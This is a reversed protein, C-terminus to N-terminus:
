DGKAFSAIEQILEPALAFLDNHHARPVLRLTAAPLLEAIRKGMEVPIVEDESGHVILAPLLLEPAKACTDYRDKVLVRAPLFPAIRSAMDVMSTYPSILVLRSGSGRRAMEAAVGSGLSHGVLVTRSIPVSLRKQLHDIAAAAAAYLAGENPARDSMPGYGPYEVAYFGVGASSFARVLDPMDNLDEGNGHFYVLTPASEPAKAHLAYVPGDASPIRELAAGTAQPESASRRPAPYMLARQGLFAALALAGYLGAIWAVLSV